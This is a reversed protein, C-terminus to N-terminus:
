PQAALLAAFEKYSADGEPLLKAAVMAPGLEARLAKDACELGCQVIEAVVQTTGTSFITGSDVMYLWADYRTIGGDVVGGVKCSALVCEDGGAEEPDEDPMALRTPGSTGLYRPGIVALQATQVSTLTVSGDIPTLPAFRLAM